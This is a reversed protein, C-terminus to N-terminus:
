FLKKINIDVFMILFIFYLKIINKIIMYLYLIDFPMNLFYHNEYDLFYLIPMLILALAYILFFM